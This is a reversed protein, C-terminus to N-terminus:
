FSIGFLFGDGKKGNFNSRVYDIRLFRWKGIGINDLGLSFESYPKRGGTFLGKANAVVHFNLTNLLPINRLLRGKFNHELHVETYKDNTSFKYYNLLGFSSNRNSPALKLQNGNAHLYDMFAIDKKEFFIGSRINYNFEGLNGISINQRINSILVDSNYESVNSGFNKRYRISLSPYRSNDFNIKRNPYSVYKQDFVISTGINLSAINHTNFPATFNTPDIPNNSQFPIDRGFVVFNSTNFLPKRSAYELSGSIYLGNLVEQSYSIKSFSKEYIKLYNEKLFLSYITNYFKSIPNRENFQSIKKGVSIFMKPRLISNWKKTFYLVPRIKKESMSYNLNAGAQIWKGTKNLSKFYNISTTTNRGQVTNYSITTLPSNISISWNKFSNRYIYGTFLSTIKIPNNNKDLSDLYKKSKRTEKISDKLLYDNKEESTLPVPRLNEWFLSDKETAGKAFSLVENSFTEEKFKPSFNYDSYAGSFRGDVNFGFLGFKFDIIQSIKIWAKNSESYNYDQKFKLVEIIPIGVQEGSAKLDVGYIAWDEEVIYIFGTFVRDRSRKPNVKIKNILRGNKEYFSGELEYSYYRFANDSIPSVLNNEAILIANSYFDFNAEEARNFSIGNDSGSVKSAIIKEKFEAPKKQFTIESITESLYIIGTRTSDLGGGLDGLSQGLIKEPANKVKFLGRSYFSSTYEKFKDTNISKNDIAKRIIKNAPNEGTNISIEDLVVKEDDMVVNLQFPFDTISVIKKITKYGLFQFVITYDGPTKINLEYNGADNSTTGTITKDLYISVFSIPNKYSDTVKGKIQSFSFFSHLLLVILTIKKM